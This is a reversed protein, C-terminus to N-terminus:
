CKLGEKRKLDAEFSAELQRKLLFPNVDALTVPYGICPNHLFRMGCDSCEEIIDVSNPSYRTMKHNLVEHQQYPTKRKLKTTM